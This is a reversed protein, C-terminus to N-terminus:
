RTGGGTLCTRRCVAQIAQKEFKNKKLSRLPRGGERDGCGLKLCASLTGCNGGEERYCRATAFSAALISAKLAIWRLVM